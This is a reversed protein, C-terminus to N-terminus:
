KSSVTPVVLAPKGFLSLTRQASTTTKPAEEPQSPDALLPNPISFVMGTKTSSPPPAIENDTGSGTSEIDDRSVISANDTPGSTTTTTTTPAHRSLETPAIPTAPVMTAAVAAALKIPQGSTTVDMLSDESLSRTTRVLPRESKSAQRECHDWVEKPVKDLAKCDALIQEKTSKSSIHNEVVSKLMANELRLSQFESHLCDLQSKKRQRTQKALERNRKRRIELQQEATMENSVLVASTKCNTAVAVAKLFKDKAVSPRARKVGVFPASNIVTEMTPMPAIRVLCPVKRTPLSVTATENSSATVVSSSSTTGENSTVEVRMKKIPPPQARMVDDKKMDDQSACLELPTDASPMVLSGQNEDLLLDALMDFEEEMWKGSLMMEDGENEPQQEGVTEKSPQQSM